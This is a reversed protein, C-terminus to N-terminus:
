GTVEKQNFKTFSFIKPIEGDKLLAKVDFIKNNKNTVINGEM